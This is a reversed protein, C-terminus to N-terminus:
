SVPCVFSVSFGLIASRMTDVYVCSTCLLAPRGSPWTARTARGEELHDVDGLLSARRRFTPNHHQSFM